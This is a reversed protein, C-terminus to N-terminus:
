KFENSSGTLQMKRKKTYIQPCAYFPKSKPLGVLGYKGYFADFGRHTPTYVESYFGLDWKGVLKTAYGGEQLKEALTPLRLPLGGKDLASLEGQLGTHIKLFIFNNSHM